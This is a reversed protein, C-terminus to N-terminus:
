ARRAVVAVRSGVETVASGPALGDSAALVTHPRPLAVPATGFNLVVLLEGGRTFALVDQGLDVLECPGDLLEPEARRLRLLTRYWALISGPQARLTALNHADPQPPFPLWPDSHWGHLGTADWPIPARCGDRGGPDVVRKAPIEADM